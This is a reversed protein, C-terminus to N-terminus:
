HLILYTLLISLGILMVFAYDYIFGTQFLSAKDSIKKILKSIGDPGFRDIFGQDGQKWFFSGLRKTPKIFINEYLEDIFWKNLLFNYLPLNTNKFEELIKVNIVFYYFTLPISIVVLIPTLLLFWLPISIHEIENLFFISTQWFEDSYHGIFIEKFFYGAFLEGISLFFLPVLM